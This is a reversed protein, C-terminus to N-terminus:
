TESFTPECCPRASRFTSRPRRSLLFGGPRSGGSGTWGGQCEAGQQGPGGQLLRGLELGSSTDGLDDHVGADRLLGQALDLRPVALDNLQLVADTLQVVHEHVHGHKHLALHTGLGQGRGRGRRLWPQASGLGKQGVRQGAQSPGAEPLYGGATSVAELAQGGSSRTQM